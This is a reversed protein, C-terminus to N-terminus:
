LSMGCDTRRSSMAGGFSGPHISTNVEDTARRLINVQFAPFALPERFGGSLSHQMQFFNM